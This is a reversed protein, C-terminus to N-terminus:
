GLCVQGDEYGNSHHRASLDRVSDDRVPGHWEKARVKDREPM